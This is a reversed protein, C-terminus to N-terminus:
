LASALQLAADVESLSTPVHADVPIGAGEICRGSRDYTLATSVTLTWGPLLRLVRPRGSGGGSPAGIVRVHDLGQLGLLFDEASSFTLEDTLVILRGPWGDAAPEAHLQTPASLGGSGVSYRISGLTTATRLFRDRARCAAVLSGGPNRRLDVVVAECSRLERLAVDVADDVDERWVGIRIYGKGTELRRWEVVPEPPSTAPEDEWSVRHGSPDAATM